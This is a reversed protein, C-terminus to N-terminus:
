YYDIIISLFDMIIDGNGPICISFTYNENHDYTGGIDGNESDLLIGECDDVTLNSMNYTVQAHVVMTSLQVSCILLLLFFRRKM